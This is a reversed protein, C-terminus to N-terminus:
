RTRGSCALLEGWPDDSAAPKRWGPLSWPSGATQAILDTCLDSPPEFEVGLGKCVDHAHLILEIAARALFDSPPAVEVKPRRRIIARCDPPADAVVACLVRSAVELAQVLQAPSAEPGCSWVSGMDPYADQKRSALCFAPAFTCDVAHDATQRCTRDLTGAKASWDRDAGALWATVVENTLREFDERDFVSSMM